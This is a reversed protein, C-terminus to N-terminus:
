AKKDLKQIVRKILEVAGAMKEPNVIDLTDQDCHIKKVDKKSLFTAVELKIKKFPAHDSSGAMMSKFGRVEIEKEEASEKILKNLTKNLPTTKFVGKKEMYAIEQGVMDVNINYFRDKMAMLEEKHRKVYAKSGYLGWEEAACWIFTLNVNKLPNKGFFAALDLLVASGSGNDCAGDSDNTRKSFFSIFILILSFTTLGLIIWRLIVITTELKLSHTYFRILFLIGTTLTLLLTFLLSLAKGAISIKGFKPMSSAVTDYHATLFIEKKLNEDESTLIRDKGVTAIINYGKAKKGLFEFKDKTLLTVFVVMFGLFGIIGAIPLYGNYPPELYLSITFFVMFLGIFVEMVKRGRVLGNSWIIEEKQPQLSNQTLFNTIYNITDKEGHTGMMRPKSLPSNELIDMASDTM